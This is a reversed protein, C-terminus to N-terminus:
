PEVKEIRLMLDPYQGNDSQEDAFKGAENWSPFELVTFIESYHSQNGHPVKFTFKFKNM